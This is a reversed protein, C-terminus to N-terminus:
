PLIDELQKQKRRRRAAGVLGTLGTGLLLMSAPEPVATPTCTGCAVVSLNATLLTGSALATLSIPNVVVSFTACLNAAANVYTFQTPAFALVGTSANLTGVLNLPNPDFVGGAGALAVNLTAGGNLIIQNLNPTTGLGGFSILASTGPAAQSLTTTLANGAFTTTLTIPSAVVAGNTIVLANSVVTIVCDAKAVGQSLTLIALGVISLTLAKMTKTIFINM